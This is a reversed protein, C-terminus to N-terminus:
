DLEIKESLIFSHERGSSDLMRSVGSIVSTEAWYQGRPFCGLIPAEIAWKSLPSTQVIIFDTYDRTVTELVQVPTWGEDEMRQYAVDHLSSSQSLRVMIEQLAIREQKTLKEYGISKAADIGIANVFPDVAPEKKPKETEGFLQTVALLSLLLTVSKYKM